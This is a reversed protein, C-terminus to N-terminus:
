ENNLAEVPNAMAARLAQFGTTILTLVLAGLGALVFIWWYLPARIEYTDLWTDLVQYAIPIAILSAIILLVVFEKSLLALIHTVTAGLVKRIGIEKVRQEALYAALGFLGLCSIFIAVISFFSAQESIRQETLFKQEYDDDAFSYDFPDNPLVSHFAQELGTLAESVNSSPHLRIYLYQIWSDDFFMISQDTKEFPSNKIMDEVVGIITYNEAEKWGPNYNVVLGIPDELQMMEMATRNIIIARKDDGFDESFDRGLIFKMGVAEAYGPSINITNFSDDFSEDMGTWTFGGNWGLNNVVPYNSTGVAKALGTNMLEAKLVAMKKSFNPSARELSIMGEPAYGIPRNKAAQIQNNVTITGIILAISITFQVVVLVKRPIAAKSGESFKGKLARVPSFSSLYLAPYSGAMFATLLVFGTAIGWFSAMEWPAEISKGSLENFWPLLMVLLGLAILFSLLAYLVSELYFQAVLENRISGMAKRIGSERVRKESRATSLNTFNICALILVFVGITGYLWIFKMEPSVVQKFDVFASRLHWDKMPHLFLQVQRDDSAYHPAVLQDLSAGLTELNVGPAVKVYVKVNFNDWINMNKDGVTLVLRTAYNAYSFKSNKPLDKYVGTVLLDTRGAVKITKNLPDEKGFLRKAFSESLLISYKDELGNIGGAIMEFGLVEPGNPQMLLGVERLSKQGYAIVRTNARGETMFVEEVADPFNEALTSGVATTMFTNTRKKDGFQSHSRVQVMQEYHPHYQNFTWEDHVWFGILIAVVMGLSLGGINLLSYVKSRLMQRYIIKFHHQIM